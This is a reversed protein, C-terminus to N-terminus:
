RRLDLRMALGGLTPLMFRVFRRKQDGQPVSAEGKGPNQVLREAHETGPEAMYIVIRLDIGAMTLVDRDLTLTRVHPHDITM